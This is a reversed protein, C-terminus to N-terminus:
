LRGGLPYYATEIGAMARALGDRDFISGEIIEVGDPVAGAQCSQPSLPSSPCGTGQVVGDAPAARRIGGTLFISVM